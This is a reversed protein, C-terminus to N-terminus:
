RSIIDYVAQLYEDLHIEILLSQDGRKLTAHFVYSRTFLFDWNLKMKEIKTPKFGRKGVYLIVRDREFEVKPKGTTVYLLPKLKMEEEFLFLRKLVVDDDDRVLLAVSPFIFLLFRTDNLNIEYVTYIATKRIIKGLGKLQLAENKDIQKVKEKSLLV